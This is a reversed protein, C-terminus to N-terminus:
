TFVGPAASSSREGKRSRSRSSRRSKSDHRKSSKSRSSKRSRDDRSRSQRYKRQMLARRRRRNTFLIGTFMVFSALLLLGGAVYKLKTMWTRSPGSFGSRSRIIGGNESRRTKMSDNDICLGSDLSSCTDSNSALIYALNNNDNDGDNDGYYISACSKYSKLARNLGKLKNYTTGKPQLCYADNFYVLAFTGDSSCGLGIYGNNGKECLPLNEYDADNNKDDEYNAEDDDGDYDAFPNNADYLTM